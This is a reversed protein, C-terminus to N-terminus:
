NRIFKADLPEVGEKSCLWLRRRQSQLNVM